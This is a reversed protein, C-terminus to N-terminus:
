RAQAADLGTLLDVTLSSIQERAEDASLTPVGDGSQPGYDGFSAHSAGEVEVFRASAPLQARSDDVSEPTALGDESGSVSLVAADLSASLDTAPYSAYLLLGRVPGTPDADHAEADMAAVTGGLSHGGVVWAAVEPHASRATEFASTALFAIGLPQKPIVVLFGEEALPRLVAAYARADVKAGPQFLVATPAARGDPRLEIATATETVAVGAGPDLAALAPETAGLPRLWM